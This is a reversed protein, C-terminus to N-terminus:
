GNDELGEELAALEAATPEFPIDVVIRIKKKRVEVSSSHLGFLQFLEVLLRKRDAKYQDDLSHLDLTGVGPENDRARVSKPTPNAM